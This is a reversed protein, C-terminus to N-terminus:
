SKRSRSTIVTTVDFSVGRQSRRTRGMGEQEGGGRNVVMRVTLKQSVLECILSITRYKDKQSQSIKNLMLIEPNWEKNRSFLVGSHIHAVNEKGTLLQCVNRKQEWKKATTFLATTFM